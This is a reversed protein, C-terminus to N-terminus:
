MRAELTDMNLLEKCADEIIPKDLRMLYIDEPCDTGKPDCMAGPYEILTVRRSLWRVFRMRRKKVKDHLICKPIVTVLVGGPMLLRHYNYRIHDIIEDDEFPPNLLLCDFYDDYGMKHLSFCDRNSVGPVGMDLVSCRSSVFMNYLAIDIENYFTNFEKLVKIGRRNRYATVYTNILRGYGGSTDGVAEFRRDGLMSVMLEAVYVPTEKIMSLSVLVRYLV